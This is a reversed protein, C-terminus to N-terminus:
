KPPYRRFLKTMAKKIRKERRAAKINERVTGVGRGQWVLQNADSDILDVFITGEIYEHVNINTTTFGGGWRYRYSTGYWDTTATASQRQQTSIKIDVWLDPDESRSYGKNVLETTIANILRDKNLDNLPLNLAEETFNFSSFKSFDANKDYDFSTRVQASSRNVAFTILILFAIKKM